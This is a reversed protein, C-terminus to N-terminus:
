GMSKLVPERFPKFYGEDAMALMERDGRSDGYAYLYDSKQLVVEENIRRVKEPGFCNLSAFRGTAVGMKTMIKTAITSAGLNEAWPILYIEPSASVIFVHHGEDIHWQLRALAEPRVIKPLHNRAFLEAKEQLVSLPMRSFFYRFVREKARHNSIIGLLYAVLWPGLMMGGWIVRSYGHCFVLFDHFSDHFSLTGDFDFFAYSAGQNM